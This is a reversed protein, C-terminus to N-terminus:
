IKDSDCIKEYTNALGEQYDPANIGYIVMYTTTLNVMVSINQAM